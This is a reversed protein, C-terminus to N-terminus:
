GAGTKFQGAMEFLEESLAALDAAARSACEANQATSSAMESIAVVSKDIQQSAVAQEEAASAVQATRDLIHGVSAVIDGLAAHAQEAKEITGATASSSSEIAAVAQSSGSQLHEIMVQIESTSEQTRSALTRVEDAVVSFGRGQEGARAAEIAANLALLNTQEAIGRIVDLVGGIEESKVNLDNVVEATNRVDDGMTAIAQKVDDVKAQGGRAHDNAARAEGSAGEASGAIEKVTASMETMATAVQHTEQHQNAITESNAQTSASLSRASEALNGALSRLRGVVEEIKATYHNFAGALHAIEDGGDESLRQTLDGDGAAINEMASATAQLRTVISRRILYTALTMAALIALTILGNIMLVNQFVVEVDDVYVGTGVIWGWPEFGQVFSIKAVPEDSGPKPWHYAVTGGGQGRVTEVMENFLRLGNPDEVQGLAKGDLEPKMPHMVMRPLMDNVWVYNQGDYRVGSLASLAAAQADAVTMEGAQQRAHYGKVLSIATEVISRTKEARDEYLQGRTMGINLAALAVFGLMMLIILIMLRQSISLRKLLM